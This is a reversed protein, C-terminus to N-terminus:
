DKECFLCQIIRLQVRYLLPSLSVYEGACYIIHYICPSRPLLTISSFSYRKVYTIRSMNNDCFCVLSTGRIIDRYENRQKALTVFPYTLTKYYRNSSVRRVHRM